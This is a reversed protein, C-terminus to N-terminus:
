FNTELYPGFDLHWQFKKMFIILNKLSIKSKHKHGFITILSMKHSVMGLQNAILDGAASAKSTVLVEIFEHASKDSELVPMSFTQIEGGGSKRKPVKSKLQNKRSKLPSPLIQDQRKPTPAKKTPTKFIIEDENIQPNKAPSTTHAVIQEINQLSKQPSTKSFNGLERQIQLEM